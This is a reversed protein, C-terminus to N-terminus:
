REDMDMKDFITVFLCKEPPTRSGRDHITEDTSYHRLGYKSALRRSNTSEGAGSGGGIWCVNRLM